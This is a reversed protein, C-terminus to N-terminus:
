RQTFKSLPIRRIDVGITDRLFNDALRDLLVIKRSMLDIDQGFAMANHRLRFMVHNKSSWISRLNRLAFIIDILM